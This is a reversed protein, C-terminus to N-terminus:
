KKIKTRLKWFTIIASFIFGCIVSLIIVVNITFINTYGEWLDPIAKLYIFFYMLAFIMASYIVGRILWWVWNLWGWKTM